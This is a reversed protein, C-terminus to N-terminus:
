WVSCLLRQNRHGGQHQFLGNLWPWVTGFNGTNQRTQVAPAPLPVEGEGVGELADTWGHGLDLPFFFWTFDLFFLLHFLYLVLFTFLHLPFFDSFHKFKVFVTKQTGHCPSISIIALKIIPFHQGVAYYLMSFIRFIAALICKSASGIWLLADRLKRWRYKVKVPPM